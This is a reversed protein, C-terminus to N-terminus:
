YADGSLEVACEVTRKTVFATLAKAYHWREVVSGM